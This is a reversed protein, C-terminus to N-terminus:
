KQCSVSVVPVVIVGIVKAKARAHKAGVTVFVSFKIQVGVVADIVIV